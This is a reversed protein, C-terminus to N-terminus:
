DKDAYPLGHPKTKRFSNDRPAYAAGAPPYSKEFYGGARYEMYFKRGVNFGRKRLKRFVFEREYPNTGNEIEQESPRNMLLVNSAEQVATSSGKIDYESYIKSDKSGEPKKPHMVLIIHIPIEKALMVFDHIVRDYELVQDSGRVPKMFFNLNDLIAVKVGEVEQMFKLTQIMENIDVRDNHTSLTLHKGILDSTSKLGHYFDKTEFKEGTNLDKGSAISIMRTVFDVDGTEVPAVFINVGLKVLQLAIAALWQTKGAGTSGCFITFEKPRLGGTFENFKKWEPLEIGPTPNLIAEVSESLVIDGKRTNLM